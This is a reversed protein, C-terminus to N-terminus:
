LKIWKLSRSSYNLNINLFYVGSDLQSIDIKNEDKELLGRRLIRGHGDIVQYSCAQPTVVIIQEGAPNPYLKIKIATEPNNTETQAGMALSGEYEVAGISPPTRYAKGYFDTVVPNTPKGKQYALSTSTIMYNTANLLPDGIVQNPDAVPLVPGAWNTQNQKYWLNNSYTFSSPATDPGINVETSVATTIIFINNQVTNRGCAEFRLPDVTEQLIRMAWKGPRLLTNNFVKCDVAGVFAFPAESGEIVNGYVEITSAEYNANQPRFFELDTSGGINLGRAGGNLFYSRRITIDKSGGKIQISNSGLQEFRLRQFLGRHCGVMDVGSGGASGNLFTCDSVEFDDVGSLKLLDNNGTANINRFICNRITLHHAPTNFTGADDINMGNGTQNQFILNQIIVYSIDSFHFSESGGAFIVTEGSAGQIVIPNMSTGNLDSIFFSGTYSGTHIIVTDGAIVNNQISSPSTWPYGSGIHRLRAHNINWTVLFIVFLFIRSNDILM